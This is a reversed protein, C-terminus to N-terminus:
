APLRPVHYGGELAWAWAVHNDEGWDGWQLATWALLDVLGPGAEFASIAHGGWTHIAIADHDRGRVTTSRNDVKTVDSRGDQYYLWFVRADAPPAGPVRKATLALGTLWVEDVERNASVEFGGRTPVFGFATANWGPRDWAVRGGDFSRTVHTFDF